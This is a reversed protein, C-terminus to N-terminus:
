TKKTPTDEPIYKTTQAKHSNRRSKPNKPGEPNTHAYTRTPKRRHALQTNRHM